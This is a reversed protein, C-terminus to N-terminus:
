CSQNCKAAAEIYKFHLEPDQSNTLISGLFYYIGEFAGAAEFIQILNAAGLKEHNLISVQVSRM